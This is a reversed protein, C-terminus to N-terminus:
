GRFTDYFFVVHAYAPNDVYGSLSERKARQYKIDVLAVGPADEMLINQSDAYLEIAQDRDLGASREAASILDDYISNSYYSLNFLIEDESAFMAQMFSHPNAYDPWWYFLFIDQRRLPNPSKGLDWQAEWPMGRPELEINLKALESKWLEAVKRELEDGAVYTLVIKFGGNPFGAATLLRKAVELNHTYQKVRESYGWLSFPIIGRSQRGFGQLAGEVIDDYPITYALAQRVLKNNLPPKQTNFLSLLNQWATTEIIEIKPNTRLADIDTVPLRNTFDAEGREIMLRRTSPESVVQFVVTEFHEGQWGQWYGDFKKLVLEIQEGLSWRQVTYPGTGSDNGAAFWDHDSFAPDFVYAAYAAAVVLDLPAPFSLHFRVTYDDVAEIRDVSAWIFSAGLGRQMTREFSFKVAQADMENGTHFKVGKRLQFTWTLGDESQEYSEALLPTFSDSFPDYRLLTEYMNHMAVIENSFGDSPDWFIMIESSNVYIAVDPSDQASVSFGIGGVLSIFLLAVLFRTLQVKPSVRGRSQM